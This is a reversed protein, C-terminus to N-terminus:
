LCHSVKTQLLCPRSLASRPRRPSRTSTSLAATARLAQRRCCPPTSCRGRRSRSAVDSNLSSHLLRKDYETRPDRKAPLLLRRFTTLLSHAKNEISGRGDHCPPWVGAPRAWHMVQVRTVVFSWVQSGPHNSHGSNLTFASLRMCHMHSAACAALTRDVLSLRHNQTYSRGVM